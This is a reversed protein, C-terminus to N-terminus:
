TVEEAESASAEDDTTGDAVSAGAGISRGLKLLHATWLRELDPVSEIPVHVGSARLSNWPVGVDTSLLREVPLRDETRILTDSRSNVYLATAGSQGNWHDDEFPISTAFGSGILGRETGQRMLFLRDGPLIRKTNGCSWRISALKGSATAKVKRAYDSEDWAWHSPNWTVVFANAQEIQDVWGLEIIAQVVQPWLTWEYSEDTRHPPADGLVSTLVPQGHETMTPKFGLEDCLLRGLRGYVGQAQKYGVAQGLARISITHGPAAYHARLMEFHRPHM